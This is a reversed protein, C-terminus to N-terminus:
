DEGRHRELAVVAVTVNGPTGRRLALSVLYAALAAVDV